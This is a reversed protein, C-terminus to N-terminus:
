EVYEYSIRRFVNGYVWVANLFLLASTVLFVYNLGFHAAIQGGAVAGGFTGLFQAMQNYGYVQGAVEDPISQKLLTNISPLLAGTSLGLLFRLAMLQWENKVFAQPIFLCSATVLAVLIVKHAGIKDSLKGLWPAALISAVGSAAFTLGSIVAIHDSGPSLAGIYVTIIPEITFLALQLIFTTIFMSILLRKDPLRDCIEHFSLVHTEKRTFNEKVFVLTLIFAILLLIGMTFFVSRFGLAEALYGGILPGLLTGCVVGTSLIGLAWGAREKCTQTAILTIAGSNFGSITGQLLRFGVLQYVNQVFGICTVVIAMGLSARLLMPKRGYKDALKGWLPSFLAAVLTTCGFAIGSWMEISETNHIGLHEIYLPLVPAVQSLASSTAFAGLWCIFLNRKWMEM